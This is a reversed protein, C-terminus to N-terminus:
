DAVQAATSTRLRAGGGKAGAGAGPNVGGKIEDVGGVSAVAWQKKPRPAAGVHAGGWVPVRRLLSSRCLKIM